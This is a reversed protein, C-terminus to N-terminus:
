PRRGGGWPLKKQGEQLLGVPEEGDLWRHSRIAERLREDLRDLKTSDPFSERARGLRERAQDFRGLSILVDLELVVGDHRRERSETKSSLEGLLSLAREEEGALWELNALRLYAGDTDAHYPLALVVRYAEAAEELEDVRYLYNAISLLTRRRREAEREGSLLARYHELAKAPEDLDEEYIRALLRRAEPAADSNAHDALLKRLRDTAADVDRLRLYYIRALELLADAALPSGPAVITVERYLRAATEYDDAEIANRARATLDIEERQCGALLLPLSAVLPGLANLFAKIPHSVASGM